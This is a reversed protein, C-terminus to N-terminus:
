SSPPPPIPYYRDLGEHDHLGLSERQVILYWRWLCARERQTRYATTLRAREGEDPAAALARRVATLEALQAELTAAIRALAEAKEGAIEALTRTYSDEPASM